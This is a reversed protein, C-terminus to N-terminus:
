TAVPVNIFKKSEDIFNNLRKVLEKPKTVYHLQLPNSNAGGEPHISVTGYGFLSQIFNTNVAKVIKITSTAISTSGAVFVGHQRYLTFQKPSFINFDMEYDIIYYFTKIIIWLFILNFVFQLIIYLRDNFKNDKSLFLTLGVTLVCILIQFLFSTMSHKIYTEFTWSKLNQETVSDTCIRNNKICQFIVLLTHLIRFLTIASYASCVISFIVPHDAFFQRYVFRLLVGFAALSFLMWGITKILFFRHKKTLIAYGQGHEKIAYLLEKEDLKTDFNNMIKM